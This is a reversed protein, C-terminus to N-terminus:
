SVTPSWALKASLSFGDTEMWFPLLNIQGFRYEKDRLATTFTKLVQLHGPCHKEKFIGAISASIDLNGNIYAAM